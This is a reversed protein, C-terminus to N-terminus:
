KENSRKKQREFEEQLSKLHVSKDSIRKGTKLCIPIDHYYPYYFKACLLGKCKACNM